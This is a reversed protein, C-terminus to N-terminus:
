EAEERKISKKISYAKGTFKSNCKKCYWIGAAIRKTKPANCYPCKHKEKQLAEIKGFKHKVKSGYRAGFRKILKEPNAMKLFPAARIKL